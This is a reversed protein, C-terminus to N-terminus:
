KGHVYQSNRPVNMAGPQVAFCALGSHKNLRWIRVFQLCSLVLTLVHSQLMSCDNELELERLPRVIM